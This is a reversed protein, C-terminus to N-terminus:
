EYVNIKKFNIKNYQFDVNSTKEKLINSSNFM